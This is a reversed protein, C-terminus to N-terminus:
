CLRTTPPVLPPPPDGPPGWIMGFYQTTPGGPNIRLPSCWAGQGLIVTERGPGAQFSAGTIRFGIVRGPPAEWGGTITDGEVTAQMNGVIPTASGGSRVEMRGTAETDSTFRLVIYNADGLPSQRSGASDSFRSYESFRLTATTGALPGAAGGPVRASPTVPVAPAATAQRAASLYDRCQRWLPLWAEVLRVAIDLSRLERTLLNMQERMALLNANAATEDMRSVTTNGGSLRDIQAILAADIRERDLRRVNELTTLVLGATRRRREILRPLATEMEAVREAATAANLAYCGGRTLQQVADVWAQAALPAPPSLAAAWTAIAFRLRM